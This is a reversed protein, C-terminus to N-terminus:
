SSVSVSCGLRKLLQSFEKLVVSHSFRRRVYERGASSVRAHLDEDTFLAVVADVWESPSNAVLVDRGPGLDMGEVGVDTTVVPCGAALSTVIKGKIGAGFRLPAVSLRANEFYPKLDPVHGTVLVRESALALVNEPPDSGVIVLRAEPISGSILPWCERYFWTVADLNPSHGFGGIALIDTGSDRPAATDTADMIYPPLTHVEAVSAMARIMDAEFSSFTVVSDALCWLATEVRKMRESELFLEPDREVEAQRQKRLFHLDRGCYIVPANTAEQVRDLYKTAQEPRSLWVFQIRNGYETFVSPLEASGHHTEIGMSELVTSYPERRKPNDSVFITKFGLEQTVGLYHFMGLAGAHRDYEPIKDDIVLAVPAGHPREKALSINQRDHPFHHARLEDRWKEEFKPRNLVQYRKVGSEVDQGHSLGEHHIVVSKPQYMVRMGRSRVAFCLDADEKYAPAFRTDFGGVEAFVSTRVMLSAGSVKDVERVYNYKPREPKHDGRGYNAGNADSWYIAGAEQLRGDPYLLKSGVVATEAREEFLDIMADLWGPLVETDNNLFVLFEGRARRAASNCTRVFGLNDRSRFYRLGPVIQLLSSEDPSCDDALIVEYSTREQLRAISVLCRCSSGIEGYVPVIVSVKPREVSENFSLQALTKRWSQSDVDVGLSEM